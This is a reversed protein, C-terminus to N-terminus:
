QQLESYNTDNMAKIVAKTETLFENTKELQQRIDHLSANAGSMAQGAIKAEALFENIKELHWRLHSIIANSNQYPFISLLNKLFLSWDSELSSEKVAVARNILLACSLGALSTIFAIGAGSLLEELSMRALNADTSALGAAAGNIGVVLGIFTGLVGFSICISKAFSISEESICEDKIAQM